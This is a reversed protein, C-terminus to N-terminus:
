VCQSRHIYMRYHSQLTEARNVPEQPVEVNNEMIAMSIPMGMLLM